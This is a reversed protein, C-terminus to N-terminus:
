PWKKKENFMMQSILAIHNPALIYNNSDSIHKVECLSASIIIVPTLLTNQSEM